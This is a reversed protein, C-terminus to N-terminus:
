TIEPGLHVSKPGEFTRLLDDRSIAARAEAVTVEFDRKAQEYSEACLPCGNSLPDMNGRHEGRRHATVKKRTPHRKTM